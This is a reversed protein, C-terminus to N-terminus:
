SKQLLVADLLSRAKGLEEEMNLILTSRPEYVEKLRKWEPLETFQINDLNEAGQINAHCINALKDAICLCTALFTQYEPDDSDRNQSHEPEHHFHVSRVIEHHLGWEKCLQASVEAHNIDMLQQEAEYMGRESIASLLLVLEFERPFYHEMFLKGVDHLLGALYAKGQVDCYALAIHETLRATLISHLWFLNWDVKIRLSSFTNMVFVTTVAKRVEDLGLVALAEEIGAIEQRGMMPSGAHRILTSTLGPDLKVIEGVENLHADSKGLIQVLRSKAQSFVPIEKQSHVARLVKEKLIIKQIASSYLLKTNV